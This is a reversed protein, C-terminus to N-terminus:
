EISYKNQKFYFLLEDAVKEPNLVQNNAIANAIYNRIIERPTSVGLIKARLQEFEDTYDKKLCTNNPPSAYYPCSWCVICFFDNNFAKVELTEKCCNCQGWETEAM